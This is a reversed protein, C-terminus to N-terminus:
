FNFIRFTSLAVLYVVVALFLGGYFIRSLVASDFKLHM